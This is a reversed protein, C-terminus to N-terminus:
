GGIKNNQCDRGYNSLSCIECNAVESNVCYDPKGGPDDAALSVSEVQRITDMPVLDNEASGWVPYLTVRVLPEGSGFLGDLLSLRDKYPQVEAALCRGAPDYVVHRLVGALSGVLAGVRARVPFGPAAVPM